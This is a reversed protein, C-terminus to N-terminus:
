RLLSTPLEFGAALVEEADETVKEAGDTRYTLGATKRLDEAIEVADDHLVSLARGATVALGVLGEPSAVYLGYENRALEYAHFGDAWLSEPEPRIEIGIAGNKYERKAHEWPYPPVGLRISYALSQTDIDPLAAGTAIAWYFAGLDDILALATPESDYGFRPTWELFYAEGDEGAIANIDYIGPPAQERLFTAELSAFGLKEAILPLDDDYFWLANFACGTAPGIDGNFAPKHELTGEYPGVFTRGNWWRATSIAVGDVKEQIMCSGHRGFRRIVGDLYERLDTGGAAKHTADSELFRDSKWYVEADEDLTEAFRRAEEFSSFDQYPPLVAGAGQAVQFGYTRDKELRDCFKGGGVVHLGWRRAEDAKEGLGSSDFLMVTPEGARAGTKAWELLPGWGYVRPVIGEGVGRQEDESVWVRVDNGEDRLRAWLGVSVGFSSAIAIRIRAGM